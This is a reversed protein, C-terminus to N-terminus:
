PLAAEPALADPGARPSIPRPRAPQAPNVQRILNTSQDCLVLAIAEPFPRSLARQPSSLNFVTLPGLPLVRAAAPLARRWSCARRGSAGPSAPSSTRTSTGLLLVPSLPAKLAVAGPVGAGALTGAALKGPAALAAPSITRSARSEACELRETYPARSRPVLLQRRSTAFGDRRPNVTTSANERMIRNPSPSWAM